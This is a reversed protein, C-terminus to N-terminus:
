GSIRVPLWGSRSFPALIGIAPMALDLPFLIYADASLGDDTDATFNLIDPHQNQFVAVGERPVTLSLLRSAGSGRCASKQPPLWRAAGSLGPALM